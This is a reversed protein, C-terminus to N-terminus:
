LSAAAQLQAKTWNNRDPGIGIRTCEGAATAWDQAKVARCFRPFGSTLGRLGLNFAMDFIAACAEPPYFDFDPFPTQLSAVFEVVRSSLLSDIVNDPLDLRTFQKYFSALRGAPQESVNDFDGQIEVATAPGGAGPNMRRVFALHQAAAANALLNGVGVTVNGTTDLYMYSFVGEFEKLKPLYTTLNLV